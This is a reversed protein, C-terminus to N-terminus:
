FVPKLRRGQIGVKASVTFDYPVFPLSVTRSWIIYDWTFSGTTFTELSGTFTALRARQTAGIANGTLDAESLGPLFIKGTYFKGTRIFPVLILSALGSTVSTSAITGPVATQPVAITPSGGNNVRKAKYGLISSDAAMADVMQPEVESKYSVILDTAATSPDPDSTVGDTFHLVNEFFQGASQGLVTLQYVDTAM